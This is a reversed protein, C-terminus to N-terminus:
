PSKTFLRELQATTTISAVDTRTSQDMLDLRKIRQKKGRGDVIILEIRGFFKWHEEAYHALGRAREATNAATLLHPDVIDAVIEGDVERFFIFDPYVPIWETGVQYVSKLAWTKRDLNRLWAVVANQGTRALEEQVVMQEWSSARFDEYFENADNVFLHRDWKLQTSRPWEVQTEPLVPHAEEPRRSSRQIGEFRTLLMEPTASAAFRLRYMSLWKATLIQATGDLSQYVDPRRALQFFEVKTRTDDAQGSSRRAAIYANGLGEGSLLREAEKYMGDLNSAELTVAQYRALEIATSAGYAHRRSKIVVRTADRVGTTFASDKSLRELESLLVAALAGKADEVPTPEWGAEALLRALSFLRVIPKMVRRSPLTYSPLMETREFTREYVKGSARKLYVVEGSKRAISATRTDGSANLKDIIGTLANEDFHPLYLSVTNLFEDDVIRRALRARVMRGVLQAIMTDDKAPRFSIMVEARPCDWGTNLSTKFIVVRVDPDADIDSPRLYRLKTGAQTIALHEQFAHAFWEEPGSIQARLTELIRSLNSRTPNGKTGDRVQVLLIPDALTLTEAKAYNNWHQRFKKWEHVAAVLLTMDTHEGDKPHKLETAEKVLGSDRVEEVSVEVTRQTRRTGAMVAEFRAITASVGVILPIPPLELNGEESSSGKIFKQVITRAVEREADTEGMGKHAEDIILVLHSPDAVVTNTITEWLTFDRKDGTKVFSTAKGLKQTNLFYVAGPSLRQEDFDEDIVVLRGDDLAASTARMKAATQENLEPQDTLWLFVYQDDGPEGDQPGSLSEQDGCLQQEIFATAIVTKGSGTPASLGVVQSKGRRLFEERAARFEALLEATRVEQFPLLAMRM